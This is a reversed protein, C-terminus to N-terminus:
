CPFWWHIYYLKGKKLYVNIHGDSLNNEEDRLQIIQLKGEGVVEMTKINQIANPFLKKLDNISTASSLIKGRYVIFNNKLFKFKDVAVKEKYNEYRSGDKYFYQNDNSDNTQVETDFIYTCPEEEALLKISDAKGFVNEFDKLSFYRKLKGNFLMDDELMVENPYDKIKASDPEITNNPIKVEENRTKKPTDVLNNTKDNCSILIAAMLLLALNKM